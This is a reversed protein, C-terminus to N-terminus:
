CYDPVVSPGFQVVSVGGGLPRGSFWKQEVWNGECSVSRRVDESGHEGIQTQKQPRDERQKGAGGSKRRWMM